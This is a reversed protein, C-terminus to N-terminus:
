AMVGGRVTQSLNAMRKEWAALQLCGWILASADHRGTSHDDLMARLVRRDLWEHLRGGRRDLEDYAWDRLSTRLWHVLPIGFGMKPRDWLERPVFQGLLARLLHKLEGGRTKFAPPIAAALQVVNHDLIPVRAELAVAMSARDVKTLIDDVLYGHLDIAGSLVSPEAGRLRATVERGIALLRSGEVPHPHLGPYYSPTWLAARLYFSPFDDFRLIQGWRGLRTGNALGSCWAAALRVPRPVARFTDYWAM